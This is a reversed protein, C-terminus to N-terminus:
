CKFPNSTRFLKEAIILAKNSTQAAFAVANKRSIRNAEEFSLTMCTCNMARIKEIDQAVFEDAEKETTFTLIIEYPGM